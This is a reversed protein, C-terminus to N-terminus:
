SSNSTGHCFHGGGSLKKRGNLESANNHEFITNDIISQVKDLGIAGGAGGEAKNRNFYCFSLKMVTNQVLLAGGSSHKGRATNNCFITDNIFLSNGFQRVAGGLTGASNKAFFCKSIKVAPFSRTLTSNCFHMIAGGCYRARNFTFSCQHLVLNSCVSHVAGGLGSYRGYAHNNKFSCNRFVGRSYILWVGGCIEGAINEFICNYFSADSNAQINVTTGNGMQIDRFYCKHFQAHSLVVVAINSSDNRAINM